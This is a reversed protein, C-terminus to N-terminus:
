EPPEKSFTGKHYYWGPKVSLGDPIRVITRSKGEPYSRIFLVKNDASLVAHPYVIPVHRKFTKYISGPKGANYDYAM